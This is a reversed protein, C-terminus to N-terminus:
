HNKSKALSHYQQLTGSHGGDCIDINIVVGTAHKRKEGDGAKVFLTNSLGSCSWISAFGSQDVFVLGIVPVAVLDPQRLNDRRFCSPFTVNFAFIREVEM